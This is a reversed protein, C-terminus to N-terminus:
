NIKGNSLPNTKVKARRDHHPIHPWDEFQIEDVAATGTGRSMLNLLCFSIFLYMSSLQRSKKVQLCKDLTLFSPGIDKISLNHEKYMQTIIVSRHFNRNFRDVLETSESLKSSTMKYLSPYNIFITYQDSNKHSNKSTATKKVHVGFRRNNSFM